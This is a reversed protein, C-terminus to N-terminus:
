SPRLWPPPRRRSSSTMLPEVSAAVPEIHRHLRHRQQEHRPREPAARHELRAGCDPPAPAAAGEVLANTATGWGVSDILASAGDRLGVAGGPAALDPSFSEDPPKAGGYSAGGLLYFGGVALTTAAPVTALAVDTTGTASRYVLKWGSIDAAATGSNALEVFEDAGSASTGTGVENVRVVATGSPSAICALTV